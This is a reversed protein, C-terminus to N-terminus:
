VRKKFREIAAGAGLVAFFLFFWNGFGLLSASEEITGYSTHTWPIPVVWGKEADPKRPREISYYGILAFQWVLVVLCGMGGVAKLIASWIQWPNRNFFRM